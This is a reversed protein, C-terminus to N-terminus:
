QIDNDKQGNCQRDKKTRQMTQGEKDTANDIRRQGNCQRIRRQTVAEIVGKYTKYITTQGKTRKRKAM